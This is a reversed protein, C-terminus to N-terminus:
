LGAKPVFGQSALERCLDATASSTLIGVEVEVKAANAVVDFSMVAKHFTYDGMVIAPDPSLFGPLMLTKQMVTLQDPNDQPSIKFHFHTQIM